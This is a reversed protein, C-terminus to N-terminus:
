GDSSERRDARSEARPTNPHASEAEGPNPYHDRKQIAERIYDILVSRRQVVDSRQMVTMETQEPLHTAVLLAAALPDRDPYLADVPGHENCVEVTPGDPDGDFCPGLCKPCIGTQQRYDTFTRYKAAREAQEKRRKITRCWDM